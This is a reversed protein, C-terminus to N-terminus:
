ETRAYKTKSYNQMNINIKTKMPIKKGKEKIKSKTQKTKNMFSMSFLICLHTPLFASLIHSNSSTFCMVLIYQTFFQIFYIYSHDVILFM